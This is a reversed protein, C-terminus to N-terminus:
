LVSGLVGSRSKSTQHSRPPHGTLPHKSTYFIIIFIFALCVTTNVHGLKVRNNNQTNYVFTDVWPCPIACESYEKREAEQGAKGKGGGVRKSNQSVKIGHSAATEFSLGDPAPKYKSEAHSSSMFETLAPPVVVSWGSGM